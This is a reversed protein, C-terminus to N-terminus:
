VSKGNSALIRDRHTYVNLRGGRVFGVITIGLHVALNVSLSTPANRSIVVPVDRKVAKVLIESSIRGSTLIVKDRTSIDNLLTYGFIKDIANHRGLDEAFILINVGDWLAASHIGGTAKYALSMRSFDAMLQGIKDAPVKLGTEIPREQSIKKLFNTALGKGCGSTVTGMEGKMSKIEEADIDKKLRVYLIGDMLDYEIDEIDERGSIWGESLLFGAGLEKVMSPTCLLTALEKGNLYITVAREIAVLDEIQKGMGNEIRSILTHETKDLM